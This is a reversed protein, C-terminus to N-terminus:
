HKAHNAIEKMVPRISAYVKLRQVSTDLAAAVAVQTVRQGGSRMQRIVASVAEYLATERAQQQRTHLQSNYNAFTALYALLDTHHRLREASIGLIRAVARQTIPQEQAQLQAAAQEVRKRWAAKTAAKVTALCEALFGAVQPYHCLGRGSMGMRRAVEQHSYPIGEAAMQEVITKVQALYQAEFQDFRTSKEPRSCRGDRLSASAPPHVPQALGIGRVYQVMEPYHRLGGPSRGLLTAVAQMTVAQENTQLQKVAQRVSAFLQEYRRSWQRARLDRLITQVGLYPKLTRSNCHLLRCIAQQTFPQGDRELAVVARGVREIWRAEEDQLDYKQAQAFVDRFSLGFVALYDLYHKFTEGRGVASRGEVAQLVDRSVGMHLAFAQQTWGRDRRIRGLTPGFTQIPVFMDEWPQPALLFALDDGVMQLLPREAHRVPLATCDRLDGGCAPCMGIRLPSPVLPVPADCHRCCDLLYVDHRTCGTLHTFHWSLKYFGSEQLCLPCYRLDPALVDALFLKAPGPYVSRQFKNLLHYFTTAHLQADTSGVAAPLAGYSVRPLDTWNAKRKLHPFAVASLASKSRLANLEALRVLYGTFSELSEPPPHIALADFWMM